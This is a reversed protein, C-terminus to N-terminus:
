PLDAEVSLQHIQKEAPPWDLGSGNIFLDLQQYGVRQAVRRSEM